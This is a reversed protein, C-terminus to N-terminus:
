GIIVEGGEGTETTVEKTAKRNLKIHKIKMIYITGPKEGQPIKLQTKDKTFLTYKQLSSDASPNQKVRIKVTPWDYTKSVCYM